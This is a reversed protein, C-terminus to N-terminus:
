ARAPAAPEKAVKSKWQLSRRFHLFTFRKLYHLRNEETDAGFKRKTLHSVRWLPNATKALAHRLDKPTTKGKELRRWFYIYLLGHAIFTRSLYLLVPTVIIIGFLLFAYFYREAQSLSFIWESVM